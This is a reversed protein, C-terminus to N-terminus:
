LPLMIMCYDVFSYSDNQRATSKLVSPVPFINLPPLVFVFSCFMPPSAANYRSKSACSILNNQMFSSVPRHYYVSEPFLPMVLMFHPGSTCGASCLPPFPTSSSWTPGNDEIHTRTCLLTDIFTEPVRSERRRYNIRFTVRWRLLTLVISICRCASTAGLQCAVATSKTRFKKDYIERSKKEKKKTHRKEEM